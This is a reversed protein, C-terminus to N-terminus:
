PRCTDTEGGPPAGAQLDQEITLRVLHGPIKLGHARQGQPHTIGRRAGPFIALPRGRPEHGVVPALGLEISTNEIVQKVICEAAVGPLSNIRNDVEHEVGTRAVLEDLFHQRRIRESIVRRRILVQHRKRAFVEREQRLRAAPMEQRRDRRSQQFRHPARGVRVHRQGIELLNRRREPALATRQSSKLKLGGLKRSYTSSHAVLWNKDSIRILLGPIISSRTSESTTSRGNGPAAILASSASSHLPASSRAGIRQLKRLLSHTRIPM